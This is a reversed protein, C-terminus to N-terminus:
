FEYAQEIKTWKGGNEIKSKDFYWMVSESKDGNGESGTCFLIDADGFILYPYQCDPMKIEAVNKENKDYIYVIQCNDEMADYAYFYKGDYKLSYANSVTKFDSTKGTKLSYIRTGKETEYYINGNAVVYPKVANKVVTQSKGNIYLKIGGEFNKYDKDTFHGYQYSIGNDCGYMRYLEPGPGSIEDIKNLQPNKEEVNFSYLEAKDNTAYSLYGMGQHMIFNIRMKNIESGFEALRCAQERSTGDKSIKYLYLTKSHETGDNGLLYLNSNYYYMGFRPEYQMYSFYANCDPTEENHTCDPKTCLPVSQKSNKDLFCLVDMDFYYYGENCSAMTHNDDFFSQDDTEINFSELSFGTVDSIKAPTKSDKASIASAQEDDKSGCGFFTLVIISLILIFATKKMLVVGTQLLEAIRQLICRIAM